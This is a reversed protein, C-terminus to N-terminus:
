EYKARRQLENFISTLVVDSFYIRQEALHKELLSYQELLKKGYTFYGSFSGEIPHKNESAILAREKAKKLGLYKRPFFACDGLTSTILLCDHGHYKDLSFQFFEGQWTKYTIFKLSHPKMMRKQPSEFFFPRDYQINSIYVDAQGVDVSFIKNEMELNM